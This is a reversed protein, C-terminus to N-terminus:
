LFVHTPLVLIRALSKFAVESDKSLINDKESGVVRRCLIMQLELPLRKAILFFRRTESPNSRTSNGRTSKLRLLDNCLFVTLAFLDAALEDLVGLKVRVEQRTQTPNAMFRELSSAVETKKRARALGLATHEQGDNWYKGKKNMVDGLDRGSAILWTAM